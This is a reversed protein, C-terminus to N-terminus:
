YLIIQLIYYYIIYTLIYCIIIRRQCTETAFISGKWCLIQKRHVAARCSMKVINILLGLVKIVFM